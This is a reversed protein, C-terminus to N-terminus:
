RRQEKAGHELAEKVDGAGGLMQASLNAAQSHGMGPALWELMVGVQVTDQGGPAHGWLARMPHATDTRSRGARAPASAAREAGTGRPAAAGRDGPPASRPLASGSTTDFVEIENNRFRFSQDCQM